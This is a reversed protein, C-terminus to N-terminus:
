APERGPSSATDSGRAARATAERVASAIQAQLLDKRVKGTATRPLSDTFLWRVPVKYDALRSRCLDSLEAATPPVPGAPCIAAAVEEGWFEDPTGVVAADAVGSHSLLVSEIEAPYINEGGRIIMERLRGRIRLYGREDLSGLDGTHLWGDSDIAGATAEPDGLRCTPSKQTVTKWSYADRDPGTRVATSAM